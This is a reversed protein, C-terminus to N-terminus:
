TASKCSICVTDNFECDIGEVTTRQRLEGNGSVVDMWVISTVSPSWLLNCMHFLLLVHEGCEKISILNVFDHLSLPLCDSVASFGASNRAGIRSTAFRVIALIGAICAISRHVGYPPANRNM